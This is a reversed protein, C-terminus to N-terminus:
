LERGPLREYSSFRHRKDDVAPMSIRPLFESAGFPQMILRDPDDTASAAPPYLFKNSFKTSGLRRLIYTRSEPSVTYDRHIPRPHATLPLHLFLPFFPFDPSARKDAHSTAHALFPSSIDSSATIEHGLGGKGDGLGVRKRKREGRFAEDPM